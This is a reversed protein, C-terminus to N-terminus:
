TFGGQLHTKTHWPIADDLTDLDIDPSCVSLSETETPNPDEWDFPVWDILGAFQGPRNPIARAKIIAKEPDIDGGTRALHWAIDLAKQGVFIVENSPGRMFRLADFIRHMAAGLEEKDSPM